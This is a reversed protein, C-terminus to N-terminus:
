INLEKSIYYGLVGGIVGVITYLVLYILSSTLMYQVYISGYIMYMFVLTIITVIFSGILSALAGAVAADLVSENKVLGIIIGTFLIYPTINTSTGSILYTLIIIIIGLPVIKGRTVYNIDMIDGRTKLNM